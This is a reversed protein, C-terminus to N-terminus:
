EGQEPHAILRGLFMCELRTLTKADGANHAQVYLEREEVPALLDPRCCSFDPTCLDPFELHFSQGRLWRNLQRAERVPAPTNLEGNNETTM